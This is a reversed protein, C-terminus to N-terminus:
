LILPPRVLRISPRDNGGSQTRFQFKYKEKGYKGFHKSYCAACNLMSHAVIFFNVAFDAARMAANASPIVKATEINVSGAAAHHRCPQQPQPAYAAPTM